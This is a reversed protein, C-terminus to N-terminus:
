SGISLLFESLSKNRDEPDLTVIIIDWNALLTEQIPQNGFTVYYSKRLNISGNPNQQEKLKKIKYWIYRINPDSFSYGIFLFSNSLIDSRLRVDVAEELAMRNFYQTETLIMSDDVELTGHFKVIESAAKKNVIQAFDNFTSLTNVEKGRDELAKEIHLDYNTTYITRFDLESLAIHTLSSKRKASSELSDFSVKIQHLFERWVKQDKQRIYDLLQPYSGHLVFLDPEIDIKHAIQGILEKWDPLALPKSFGSGIFPILREEKYHKKIELLIPDIDNM